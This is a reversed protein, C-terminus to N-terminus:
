PSPQWGDPDVGGPIPASPDYPTRSYIFSGLDLAVVSSESLVPLMTEGAHYGDLGLWGDSIKRFRSERGAGQLGIMHLLGDSTLRIGYSSTGWYWTGTLALASADVSELPRWAPVVYPECTHVIDLLGPLAGAALGSTANTLVVAATQEFPDAFVGALFGPMSGGHGVFTHGDVRVVQLGLGYAAWGLASADVGAPEGMEELTAPSLVDGTNGLLFHGLLALDTLTAWLQGAAAMAAGDHEPERLLVDAWPHVAYGQAARGTPRTTTRKMGMPLLVEDRVVDAWPRQRTRALVEGLVAYGLNSYHFRRGAPHKIDGPSLREAFESWALGPTREWWDTPSEAALGAGHALLQGITRDGFPTGPVHMELHDDLRLLGEDRLRMVGIATITKSISGIRYQVQEDPEAGDVEGRGSWWALEGGRVIGAVLSPLRGDAQLRAAYANLRAATAPIVSV